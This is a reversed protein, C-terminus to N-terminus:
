IAEAVRSNLVLRVASDMQAAQVDEAQQATVELTVTSYQTIEGALQADLALVRAGEIVTGGEALVDVRDGQRVLGAVGTESNVAISAAVYGPNVAEALATANGEGALNSQAVQANAPINATATKGIVLSLDAAADDALYTEPVDALRVDEVGVVTGSPIAAAAVVVTRAAAKFQAVEGTAGSVNVGAWVATGVTLACLAACACALMKPKDATRAAESPNKKGPNKGADFETRSNM